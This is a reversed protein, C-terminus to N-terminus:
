QNLPARDTSMQIQNENLAKNGILPFPNKSQDFESSGDIEQTGPNHPSVFESMQRKKDSSQLEQRQKADPFEM